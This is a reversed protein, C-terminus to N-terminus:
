RGAESSSGATIELLCFSWFVRPNLTNQDNETGCGVFVRKKGQLFHMVPLGSQVVKTSTTTSSSSSSSSTSFLLM